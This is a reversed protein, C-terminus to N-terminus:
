RKRTIQATISKFLQATDIMYRNFGKTNVTSSKNIGYRGNLIPNRVIAQLLNQTRKMGNSIKKDFVLRLFSKTFQIIQTNTTNSKKFPAALYDTGFERKQKRRIFTSVEGISHSSKSSKKRAKGGAYTTLGDTKPRPDKHPGDKLIGVRMEYRDFKRHLRRVFGDSLKVDLKM